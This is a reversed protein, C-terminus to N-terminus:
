NTGDDSKQAVDTSGIGQSYEAVTSPENQYSEKVDTRTGLEDIGLSTRIDPM